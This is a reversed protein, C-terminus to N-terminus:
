RKALSPKFFYSMYKKFTKLDVKRFKDKRFLREKKVISPMIIPTAATIEIVEM